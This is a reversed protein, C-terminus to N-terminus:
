GIMNDMWDYIRRDLLEEDVWGDMWVDMWRDMWGEIFSDMLKEKWGNMWGDMLGFIWGNMSVYMCVDKWGSWQIILWTRVRYIKNKVRCYKIDETKLYSLCEPCCQGSQCSGAPSCRKRCVVTSDLCTCTTCNDLSFSTDNEYVESHFLCSGLSLDFVKRQGPCFFFHACWKDHIPSGPPVICNLHTYAHSCSVRVGPAASAQLPKAWTPHALCFLVFRGIACREAERLIAYMFLIQIQQTFISKLGIHTHNYVSKKIRRRSGVKFWQVWPSCQLHM